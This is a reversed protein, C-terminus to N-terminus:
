IKMLKETLLYGDCTHIFFRKYKNVVEQQNSTVTTEEPHGSQEAPEPDVERIDDDESVDVGFGLFVLVVGSEM